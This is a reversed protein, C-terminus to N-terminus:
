RMMPSFSCRFPRRVNRRCRSPSREPGDVEGAQCLMANFFGEIRRSVRRNSGSATASTACQESAPKDNLETQRLWCAMALRPDEDTFDTRCVVGIEFFM